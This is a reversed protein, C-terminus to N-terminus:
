NAMAALEDATYRSGPAQFQAAVEPAPAVLAFKGRLKGRFKDFDQENNIQVAVAGGQRIGNTGPTWAKPYAILSFSGTSSIARATFKENSWGRGFPGWPELNVKSLNWQTLKKTTWEAAAKIEPSGTLRAGYVDTLYSATDMVQSRNLGEDKIKYIADLDVKEQPIQAIIPIALSLVAFCVILRARIM